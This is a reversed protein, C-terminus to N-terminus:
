RDVKGQRSMPTGGVRRQQASRGQTVLHDLQARVSWEAAQRVEADVAGYVRDTVQEVSALPGLAIVAARVQELRDARHELYESAAAALDPLDPGHGPLVRQAGLSRLRELSRLYAGLNGDPAAIVTSGRGLITDGTLVGDGTSLCVSDATHGPTRLVGLRLGGAVVVEGDRLPDAPLQGQSQAAVCLTPDAARVPVDILRRLADVGATHDAHWHTLLVLEPRLEALAAIHAADDPGPDVIVCRDGGPARLVWSNTGDLTMPSPNPALLVGATATVQRLNM